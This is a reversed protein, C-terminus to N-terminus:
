SIEIQMESVLAFKALAELVRSNDSIDIDSLDVQSFLNFDVKGIISYNSCNTGTQIPYLYVGNICFFICSRSEDYHTKMDNFESQFGAITESILSFIEVRTGQM